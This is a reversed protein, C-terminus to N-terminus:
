CDGDSSKAGLSSISSILHFSLFFLNSTLQAAKATHFRIWIVPLSEISVIPAVCNVGQQDLKWDEVQTM